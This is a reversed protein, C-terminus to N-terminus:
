VISIGRNYLRILMKYILNLIIEFDKFIHKYLVYKRKPFLWLTVLSESNYM